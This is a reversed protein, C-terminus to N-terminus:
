LCAACVLSGYTLIVLALIQCCINRIAQMPGGSAATKFAALRDLDFNSLMYEKDSAEFFAKRKEEETDKLASNVSWLNEFFSPLPQKLLLM